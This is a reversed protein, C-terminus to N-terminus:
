LPTAALPITLLPLRADGKTSSFRCGQSDFIRHGAIDYLVHFPHRPQAIDCWAVGVEESGCAEAGTDEGNAM